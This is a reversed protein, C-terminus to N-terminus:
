CFPNQDVSQPAEAVGEDCQRCEMEDGAGKGVGFTAQQRIKWDVDFGRGGGRDEFVGVEDVAVVTIGGAGSTGAFEEAKPPLEEAPTGM